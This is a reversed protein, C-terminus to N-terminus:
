AYPITYLVGGKDILSVVGLHDDLFLGHLNALDVVDPIVLDRITINHGDCGVLCLVQTDDDVWILGKRGSLTQVLCNGPARFAGPISEGCPLPILLNKGTGESDNRTWFTIEATHPVVQEIQPATVHIAMAPVGYPSNVTLMAFFETAIRPPPDLSTDEFRFMSMSPCDPNDDRPLLSDPVM